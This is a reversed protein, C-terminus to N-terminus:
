PLYLSVIVERERSAVGRTICDLASNAKWVAFVYQQSVDLNEDM